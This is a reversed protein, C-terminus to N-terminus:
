PANSTVASIDVRDPPGDGSQNGLARVTIRRSPVGETMLADRTAMARALSLRRGSSPDAPTGAAYAIITITPAGTAYATHLLAEIAATNDKSLDTQDASFALRLKETM